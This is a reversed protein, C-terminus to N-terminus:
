IKFLFTKNNNNNFNQVFLNMLIELLILEKLIKFTNNISKLTLEMYYNNIILLFKIPM